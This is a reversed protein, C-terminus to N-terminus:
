NEWINQLLDIVLLISFTLLSISCFFLIEPFYAQLHFIERLEKSSYALLGVWSILITLSGFAQMRTEPEQDISLLVYLITSIVTAVIGSRVYIENNTYVVLVIFNLIPFLSLAETEEDLLSTIDDPSVSM